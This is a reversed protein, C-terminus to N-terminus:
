GELLHAGGNADIPRCTGNKIEKVKMGNKIRLYHYLPGDGSVYKVNILNGKRPSYAKIKYTRFREQVFMKATM